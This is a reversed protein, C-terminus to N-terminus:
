IFFQHSFKAGNPQHIAIALIYTYNHLHYNEVCDDQEIADAEQTTTTDFWFLTKYDHM